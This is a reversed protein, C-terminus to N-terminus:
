NSANTKGEIPFNHKACFAKFNTEDKFHITLDDGTDLKISLTMIVVGAERSSLRMGADAIADYCFTSFYSSM